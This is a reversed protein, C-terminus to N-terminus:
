VVHKRLRSAASCALLRLCVLKGGSWVAICSVIGALRGTLDGALLRAGAPTRRMAYGPEMATM